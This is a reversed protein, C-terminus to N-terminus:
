ECGQGKGKGRDRKPSPRPENKAGSFGTSWDWVPRRLGGPGAGCFLFAALTRVAFNQWAPGWRRKSFDGSGYGPNQARSPPREGASYFFGRSGLWVATEAGSEM